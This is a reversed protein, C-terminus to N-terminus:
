ILILGCVAFKRMTMTLNVLSFDVSVYKELNFPYLEDVADENLEVLIVENLADYLDYQDANSFKHAGLFRQIGARYVKEGVVAQLM